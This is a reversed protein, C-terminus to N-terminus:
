TIPNLKGSYKIHKRDSFVFVDLLNYLLINDFQTKLIIHKQTCHM